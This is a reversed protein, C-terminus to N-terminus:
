LSVRVHKKEQYLALRSLIEAEPLELSRADELAKTQWELAAKFDGSEAAVAASVEFYTQRDPHKKDVQKLLNMAKKGNRRGDQSSTSLIWASRLLANPNGNDAARGLWYLAKDVDKEFRVGSLLEVALTYQADSLSKAAKVLWAYSKGSDAECKNGYLLNRGLFFGAANSGNQAAQYYWENPNDEFLDRRGTFRPLAELLYGYMLQDQANGKEAKEKAEETFNRIRHEDFETGELSFSYRMKLGNVAVPQGGVTEPEYINARLAELAVRTFSENSSYYVVHDRTTGNKDVTFFVDVWGSLGRRMMSRPYQPVNKKRLKLRESTPSSGLFIPKLVEELAADGFRSLLDKYAKDAVKRQEESFHQYITEHVGEKKLPEHQAALALWGYGLFADQKVFQGKYYMVGLNYQATYDGYQAAKEFEHYAKEYEGKEYHEMGLDFDANVPAALVYLTVSILLQKLLMKM